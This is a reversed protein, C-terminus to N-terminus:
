EFMFALAKEALQCKESKAESLEKEMDAIEMKGKEIRMDLDEIVVNLTEVNEQETM